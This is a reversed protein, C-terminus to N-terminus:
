MWPMLHEQLDCSYIRPVVKRRTALDMRDLSIQHLAALCTWGIPLKTGGSIVEFLGRCSHRMRRLYISERTARIYNCATKSYARVRRSSAVVHVLVSRRRRPCCRSLDKSLIGCLRGSAQVYVFTRSRLVPFVPSMEQRCRILHETREVMSEVISVHSSQPSRSSGKQM